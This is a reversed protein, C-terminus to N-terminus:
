NRLLIERHTPNELDIVILDALQRIAHWEFGKGVNCWSLNALREQRLHPLQAAEPKLCALSLRFRQTDLHNLLTIVHREAGGVCLSNVIFLVRRPQGSM